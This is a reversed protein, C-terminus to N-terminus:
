FRWTLGVGPSRVLTMSVTPGTQQADMHRKSLWRGMLVGIVGGVVVDTGWHKDLTLRSLVTGVPLVYLAYTLPGPYYMVWPTIITFAAIAHGSPFSSNNFATFYAYPDDTNEPRERAIILKMVYGLSGAFVLSQLSTMAADQFRTNNTLLSTGALVVVPVNIKPGGLYDVAELYDKFLGKKAERLEANLDRDVEGLALMAAGTGVVYLATRPKALGIWAAADAKAWRLFRKPDDDAQGQAPQVVGVILCGILGLAWAWQRCTRM